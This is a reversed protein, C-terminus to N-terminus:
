RIIFKVMRALVFDVLGIFVAMIIVSVIVVITSDIIEKRTPWSVKKLEAKAETFFTSFQKLM